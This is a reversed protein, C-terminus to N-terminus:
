PRKSSAPSATLAALTLDLLREMYAEDARGRTIVIRWYLMGGLLDTALDLDLTPALEGREIARKLVIEARKRRQVQVRTRVAQALEPTRPMEAHLDPLIRGILPHRLVRRIQRLLEALDERLSGRDPVVALETGVESLLESVMALKSPWRRYLAAKGVGARKAVAELSLAAYGCRAWEAFLASALARTVEEQFVAAGSPARRKTSKEDSRKREM